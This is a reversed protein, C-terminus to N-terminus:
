KGALRHLAPRSLCAALSAGRHPPCVAGQWTEGQCGKTVGSDPCFLYKIFSIERQKLNLLSFSLSLSHCGRSPAECVELHLSDQSVARPFGDHSHKCFALSGGLVGSPHQSTCGVDWAPKNRPPVLTGLLGASGELSQLTAAWSADELGERTGEGNERVCYNGRIFDHANLRM